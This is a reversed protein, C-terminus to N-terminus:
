AAGDTLAADRRTALPNNTLLPLFQGHFQGSLQQGIITRIQEATDPAPCTVQILPSFSVQQNQTQASPLEKAVDAPPALKDSAPALKEGLWSGGMSGMTSGVIGGVVGGIATGIVPIFSGIMAGAVAGAYGGALSGGASGLAGGVLKNDGEQLGKIVDPAATAVTLLANTKSFGKALTKADTLRSRLTPRPQAPTRPAVSSRKVPAKSNAPKRRKGSKGSKRSKDPKDTDDADASRDLVDILPGAGATTLLKTATGRILSTTAAKIQAGRSLAIVGGLMLLAATARPQEEAFRAMGSAVADLSVVVGDFANTLAGGAATSLRTVSADLANVRGQSTGGLQEADKAVSGAYDLKSPAQPNPVTLLGFAKTVDEPKKLLKLIADNGAFLTKGLAEKEEPKKDKLAEMVKIITAPADTKMGTAVAEPGLGNGLSAWATRQEDTATDAKALVTMLSNLGAGAASKDVGSNLFAAALAAVQEPTLGGAVAKEGVNQVVSGIDASTADLTSHGLYNTADALTQSKGRDLNMASQWALMMESATKVDVGFASANIAADRAFDTLAAVKLEPQLGEGVGSKAAALQVQLLDVGTAGSPAVQKESTMRLTEQSLAELQDKDLKLVRNLESLSTQQAMTAQMAKPPSRQEVEAKLKSKSESNAAPAAAVVKFLSQQSVLLERLKVQEQTLLRIDVSALALTLNLDQLPKGLNDPLTLGGTANSSEGAYTLAYRNEAM